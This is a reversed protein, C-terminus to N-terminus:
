PLVMWFFDAVNMKNRFLFIRKDERKVNWSGTMAMFPSQSSFQIKIDSENRNIVSHTWSGIEAVQVPLVPDFQKAYIRGQNDFFFEVDRYIYSSVPGAPQTKTPAWGLLMLEESVNINRESDKYCSNLGIVCILMVFMVVKM